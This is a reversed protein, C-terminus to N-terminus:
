SEEPKPAAALACNWDDIIAMIAGPSREPGAELRELKNAAVAEQMAETIHAPVLRWGNPGKDLELIPAVYHVLNRADRASLKASALKESSGNLKPGLLRYGHGSGHEDTQSIDVQIEGTAGDRWVNLRVTEGTM